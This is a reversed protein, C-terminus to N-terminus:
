LLGMGGAQVQYPGLITPCLAVATGWPKFEFSTIPSSPPARDLTVTCCKHSLDIDGQTSSGDIKEDVKQLILRLARNKANKASYDGQITILTVM